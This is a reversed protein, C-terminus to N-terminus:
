YGADLDIRGVFDGSGLFAATNVAIRRAFLPVTMAETDAVHPTVLCNPATWLPHRPPLPEPDTVDLAAGALRGSGLAAVLAGTDVIAGRAVNVLVAGPPLAAFAAAGFMGRTTPTLAAAVVVVDADTLVELLRDETVTRAAGPLAADARRVVTAHVGFPELLRLLEVTIGGAGLIVVRGGFLTRGREDAEWRDTRARRPLERLVALVLALAHEAVPRAYAGKASTWVRGDGRHRELLGAFADVGAWPLQVWSIGQYEALLAELDDEGESATWILGRTAASLPGVEAGASRAADVFEGRADDVIAVRAAPSRAGTTGHPAAGAADAAGSASM